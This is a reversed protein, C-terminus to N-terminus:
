RCKTLLPDNGRSLSFVGIPEKNTELTVTLRMTDASVQGVYRARAAAVEGYRRPGGREPTYSGKANFRGRTDLVIPQDITGTACDYELRAGILSVMMRVHEGGWLGLVMSRSEAASRPNYARGAGQVFPLCLTLLAIIVANSTSRSKLRRPTSINSKEICFDEYRTDIVMLDLTAMSSLSRAISMVM